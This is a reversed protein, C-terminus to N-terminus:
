PNSESEPSSEPAGPSFPNGVDERVEFRHKAYENLFDGDQPELRNLSEPEMPLPSGTVGVTGDATLFLGWGEILQFIRQRRMAALTQSPDRRQTIFIASEVANEDGWLVKRRMKVWLDKNSPLRLEDLEM